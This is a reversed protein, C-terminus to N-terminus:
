REKNRLSIKDKKFNVNEKNIALKELISDIERNKGKVNLKQYTSLLTYEYSVKLLEKYFAKRRSTICDLTDVIKYIKELDIRPVIRKIAENLKENEMAKIYESFCVRKGNIICASKTNIAYNRAVSPSLDDDNILPTLSSGCDYVPAVLMEGTESNLLIGWNGNHRDTNCIFADVVFMDWYHNELEEGIPLKRIIQLTDTIDLKKSIDLETNALILGKAEYLEFGNDCFDKCACAIKSKGSEEIYVGLVTKQVPIGISEYIHCGIYESLANNVYSLEHKKDRIPDPFKLLYKEEKILLTKKKDSGLYKNPLEQYQNFNEM